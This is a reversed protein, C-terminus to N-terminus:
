DFKADLYLALMRTFEITLASRQKPNATTVAALFGKVTELVVNAILLANDHSLSPDKARFAQVFAERLNQRATSSRSLKVSAARLIFYAPREQFFDMTRQILLEAFTSTAVTHATAIVPAWHREIEASYKSLLASALAAKDPFWRYLAGISTEARKAVETMTM